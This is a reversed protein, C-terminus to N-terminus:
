FVTKVSHCYFPFKSWSHHLQIFPFGYFVGRHFLGFNFFVVLESGRSIRPLSILISGWIEYGCRSESNRLALALNFHSSPKKQPAFLAISVPFFKGFKKINKKTRANVKKKEALQLKDM